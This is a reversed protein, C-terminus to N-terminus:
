CFQRNHYSLEEGLLWQSYRVRHEARVKSHLEDQDDCVPQNALGEGHKSCHYSPAREAIAQYDHLHQSSRRTSSCGSAKSSRTQSRKLLPSRLEKLLLRLGLCLSRNLHILVRRRKSGHRCLCRELLLPVRLLLLHGTTLGAAKTWLQYEPLL